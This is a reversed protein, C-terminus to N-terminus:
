LIINVNHACLVIGLSGKPMMVGASIAAVLLALLSEASMVQVKGEPGQSEPRVGKNFLPRLLDLIIHDVGSRHTLFAPVNLGRQYAMRALPTSGWAM